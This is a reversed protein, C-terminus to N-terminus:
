TITSTSQLATKVADGAAGGSAGKIINIIYPAFMALMIALVIMTVWFVWKNAFFGAKDKPKTLEVIYRGFDRVNASLTEMTRNMYLIGHQAFGLKEQTAIFDKTIVSNIQDNWIICPYHLAMFRAKNVSDKNIKIHIDGSEEYKVVGEKKGPPEVNFVAERDFVDQIPKGSLKGRVYPLQVSLNFFRLIGTSNMDIALVGKGEMMNTFPNKLFLNAVLLGALMGGFMTMVAIIMGYFIFGVAFAITTFMCAFMLGAWKKIVFPNIM